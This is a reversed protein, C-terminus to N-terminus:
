SLQKIGAASKLEGNDARIRRLALGIWEGEDLAVGFQRCFDSKSSAAHAIAMLATMHSPYEFGSQVGLIYGTYGECVKTNHPSSIRLLRSASSVLTQDDPTADIYGVQGAAKIGDRSTGRLPRHNREWRNEGINIRRAALAPDGKPGHRRFQAETPRKDWPLLEVEVKHASVRTESKAYFERLTLEHARAVSYGQQKKYKVWGLNLKTRDGKTLIPCGVQPWNKKAGTNKRGSRKGKRSLKSKGVQSAHDWAPLLAQKSCGGLLYARLARIIPAPSKMALEKGRKKAWSDAIDLAVIDRLANESVFDEIWSYQRDRVQLWRPMNRRARWPVQFKNNKLDEDSLAWSGPDARELVTLHPREADPAADAHTEDDFDSLQGLRPAKIFHRRRGTKANVEPFPIWYYYGDLSDVYVIRGIDSYDPREPEGTKNAVPDAGTATPKYAASALHHRIVAGAFPKM